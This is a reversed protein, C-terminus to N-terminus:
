FPYIGSRAGFVLRDKVKEKVTEDGFGPIKVETRVMSTDVDPSFGTLKQRYQKIYEELRQEEADLDDDTFNDANFDRSVMAGASGFSKLGKLFDEFAKDNREADRKQAYQAPTIFDPIQGPRYTMYAM